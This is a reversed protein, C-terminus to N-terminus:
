RRCSRRSPVCSSERRRAVAARWCWSASTVLERVCAGPADQPSSCTASCDLLEYVRERAESAAQHEHKLKAVALAHARKLEDMERQLKLAAAHSFRVRTENEAEL